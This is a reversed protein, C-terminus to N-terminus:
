LLFSSSFKGGLNVKTLTGPSPSNRGQENPIHALFMPQVNQVGTKDESKNRM